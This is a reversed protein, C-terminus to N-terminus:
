NLILLLQQLKIVPLPMTHYAYLMDAMWCFVWSDLANFTGSTVASYKWLHRRTGIVENCLEVQFNEWKGFVSWHKQWLCDICWRIVDWPSTSVTIEQKIKIKIQIQIHKGYTMIVNMLPLQYIYTLCWLEKKKWESGRKEKGRSGRKTRKGEAFPKIEM